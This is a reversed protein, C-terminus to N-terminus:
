GAPLTRPNHLLRDVIVSGVVIAVGVVAIAVIASRNAREWVEDVPVQTEHMASMDHELRSPTRPAAAPVPTTM